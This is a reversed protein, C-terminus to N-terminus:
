KIEEKRADSSISSSDRMKLGSTPEKYSIKNSANNSDSPDIEIEKNKISNKRNM